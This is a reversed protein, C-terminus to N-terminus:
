GMSRKINPMTDVHVEQVEGGVMRVLVGLTEWDVRCDRHVTGGGRGGWDRM